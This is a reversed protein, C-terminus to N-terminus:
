PDTFVCNKPLEWTDHGHHQNLSKNNPMSIWPHKGFLGQFPLHCCPNHVLLFTYILRLSHLSPVQLMTWSLYSIVTCLGIRHEEYMIPLCYYIHQPYLTWMWEASRLDCSRLITLFKGLFKALGLVQPFSLNTTKQNNELSHTLESTM